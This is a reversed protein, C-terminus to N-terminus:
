SSAYHNVVGRAGTRGGMKGGDGGNHAVRERHIEHFAAHFPITQLDTMNVEYERQTDVETLQTPERTSQRIQHFTQEDYHTHIDRQRHRTDQRLSQTNRKCWSTNQTPTQTWTRIDPSQKETGANAVQKHQQHSQKRKRKEDVRIETKAANNESVDEIKRYIMWNETPFNRQKPPLLPPISAEHHLPGKMDTSGEPSLSNNDLNHRQGELSSSGICVSACGSFEGCSGGQTKVLNIAPGDVHVQGGHFQVVDEESSQGMDTTLTNSQLPAWVGHESSGMGKGLDNPVAVIFSPQPPLLPCSPSPLTSAPESVTTATPFPTHDTKELPNSAPPSAVLASAVGWPQSVQHYARTAGGWVGRSFLSPSGQPSPQNNLVLPLIRASTAAPPATLGPAQPPSLTFELTSPPCELEGRPPAMAPGQPYRQEGPFPPFNCVSTDVSSVVLVSGSPPVISLPPPLPEPAAHVGDEKPPTGPGHPLNDVGPPARSDREVRDLGPGPDDQTTACSPKQM